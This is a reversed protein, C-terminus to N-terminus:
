GGDTNSLSPSSRLSRLNDRHAFSFVDASSLLHLLTTVSPSNRYVPPLILKRRRSEYKIRNSGETGVVSYEFGNM